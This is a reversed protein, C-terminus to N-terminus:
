FTGNPGRNKFLSKKLQNAVKQAFFWETQRPLGDIEKACDSASRIKTIAQIL